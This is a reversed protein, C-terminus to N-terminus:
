WERSFYHLPLFSTLFRILSLLFIAGNSLSWASLPSYAALSGVNQFCYGPESTSPMFLDLQLLFISLRLFVVKTTLEGLIIFCFNSPTLFGIHFHYLNTSLLAHDNAFVGISM